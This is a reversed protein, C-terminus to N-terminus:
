ISEHVSGGRDFGIPLADYVPILYLEALTSLIGCMQM